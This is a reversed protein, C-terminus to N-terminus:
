QQNHITIRLLHAITHVISNLSFVKTCCQGARWFSTIITSWTKNLVNIRFRRRRGKPEEITVVFVNIKVGVGSEMTWRNLLSLRWPIEVGDKGPLAIFYTKVVYGSITTVNWDNILRGCLKCIIRSNSLTNKDIVSRTLDKKVQLHM